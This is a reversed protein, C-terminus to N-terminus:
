KSFSAGAKKARKVAYLAQDAQQFLELYTAAPRDPVAVGISCRLRVPAAETRVGAFDRHLAECKREVAAPDHIDRLLVAFEDGGVRGVLDTQRCSRLLVAGVEALLEDGAPHGYTDNLQKFDDVDLLLLACSAGERSLLYAACCAEFAKKNLLGTLADTQSLKELTMRARYNRCRLRNTTVMIILSFFLAAITNFIDNELSFTTKFRSALYLFVLEAAAMLCLLVSPRLILLAPMFMFCLSIFIQPTGPYPFVSLAIFDALLLAYFLASAVEVVRPHREARKQYILAFFYALALIPVVLVYELTISWSPIIYPTILFFIGSVVAGVSGAIRMTVLNDRANDVRSELFFFRRAQMAARLRELPYM